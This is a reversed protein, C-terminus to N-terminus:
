TTAPPRCSDSERAIPFLRAALTLARDDDVDIWVHDGVDVTRVRGRSALVRIGGSLSDDGHRSSDDLAAFIAQTCLFVGTDFANYPVLGKGIACLRDGEVFARTVDDLDVTPHAEVRRDVALVVGGEDVGAQLVGELMSAAFLHDSMLLVFREPLTDAACRVSVGNPQDWHRNRVFHVDLQCRAAEQSVHQELEDARHGTVVHFRRLGALSATTMVRDILPVGGVRVLPKSPGHRALRSGDGAAIILCDTVGGVHRADVASM